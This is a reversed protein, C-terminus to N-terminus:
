AVLPEQLFVKAQDFDIKVKGGYPLICRPDAHGFNMNYIIPLDYPQTAELWLQKYEEYFQEDQPKGVLVSGVNGLIGAEDLTNLIQRM